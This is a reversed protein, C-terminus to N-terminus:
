CPCSQIATCVSTAERCRVDAQLHGQESAPVVVPDTRLEELGQWGPLQGSIQQPLGPPLHMSM